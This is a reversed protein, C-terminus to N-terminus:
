KIYAKIAELDPQSAPNRGYMFPSAIKRWQSLEKLFKFQSYAVKAFLPNEKCTELTHKYMLEQIKALDEDKLRTIKVGKDLFKQTAEIDKYNLFSFSNAFNAMASTRLLTKLHDSLDDWAKKNIMVGYLVAPQHWPPTAWYKTVEQLGLGWDVAPNSYETADIVGRELAQYLEGGALAVQAAGLDKLIKGQIRGSMRIKLGKFDDLTNIPKNGRIGSELNVGHPLYVMGFKGYVEQYLEFGGGQNIWVMYDIATLGMPCSGLLDFASNKGAWYVGCDAGAQITGKSVSDFVEFPPVLSGGDFFKIKLEGRALNNVLKVFNRDSEIALVDPTWTTTMKWEIAKGAAEVQSIVGFFFACILSVVLGLLSNKRCM